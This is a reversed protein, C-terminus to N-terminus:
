LPFWFLCCNGLEHLLEYKTSPDERTVSDPISSTSVKSSTQKRLKREEEQLNAAQMSAVAKSMTSGGGGGGGSRKVFTGGITGSVSAQREREKKASSRVVFTSFDSENEDEDDDEDDDDDDDYVKPKRLYSPSSKHNRNSKVIMTGSINADDDYDNDFNVAAADFDKPIRKLLPPLSEDDDDSNSADNDTPDPKRLMTAFINPDDNPSQSEEDDKHIVFTSYIDSSKAPSKRSRRDGPSLNM